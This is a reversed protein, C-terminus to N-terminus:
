PVPTAFLEHIVHEIVTDPDDALDGWNPLPWDDVDIM